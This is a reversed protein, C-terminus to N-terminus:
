GAISAEAPRARLADAKKKSISWFFAPLVEGRLRSVCVFRGALCREVAADRAFRQLGELAADGLGEAHEFADDGLEV